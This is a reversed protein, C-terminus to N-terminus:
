SRQDTLEWTVVRHQDIWQSGSGRVPEVLVRLAGYSMKCDQIVCEVRLTEIKVTVTRGLLAAMDATRM